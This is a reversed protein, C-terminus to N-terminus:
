EKYRPIEIKEAIMRRAEALTNQCHLPLADETEQRKVWDSNWPDPVDHIIINTKPDWWYFHSQSTGLCIRDGFYMPGDYAGYTVM